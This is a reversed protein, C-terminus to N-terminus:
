DIRPIHELMDDIYEEHKERQALGVFEAFTGRDEQVSLFVYLYNHLDKTTREIRKEGEVIATYVALPMVLLVFLALILRSAGLRWM